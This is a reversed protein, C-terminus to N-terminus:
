RLVTFVYKQHVSSLMDQVEFFVPLSDKVHSLPANNTNRTARRKMYMHGEKLQRFSTTFHREILFWAPVFNEDTPDPSGNPYMESLNMNSPAKSTSDDSLINLPDSRLSLNTAKQNRELRQDIYQTEDVWIPSVELPGVKGAKLGTFGVTSTGKGGSRTVVIIEGRGMGQGTRCVIKSSSQWEATLTCDEGCIYVKLIDNRGKGLNEGRITIKTLPPGERPSVGTVVPAPM